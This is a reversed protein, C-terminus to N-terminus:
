TIIGPTHFDAEELCHIEWGKGKESKTAFLMRKGDTRVNILGYNLKEVCKARDLRPRHYYKSSNEKLIVRYKKIDEDDSDLDLDKTGQLAGGYGQVSTFRQLGEVDRFKVSRAIETSFILPAKLSVGDVNWVKRSTMGTAALLTPRPHDHSEADGSSIVTAFPHIGSLFGYHVDHSGHHCGKAADVRFKQVFNMGYHEMIHNQSATNLDGTLLFTRDQYTAKLAVSHGNTNISTGGLSKLAPEGNVESLIPGLVEIEVKSDGPAFGTLHGSSSNLFEVDTPSGDAKTMNQWTRVFKGWNGGVQEANPIDDRSAQVVSSRDNLLQTFHGSKKPGLTKGSGSAKRWYSLGAHYINEVTLGKCDLEADSVPTRKTLDWLGGFHDQDCHSIIMADLIIPTDSQNRRQSASQYDNYFKWDVFDAANRGGNQNSRIDGGDIMINHGEPTVLLIGDGQGVDIVYIELLADDSLENTLVWGTLGRASVKTWSGDANQEHTIVRDGWLLVSIKDDNSNPNPYLNATYANQGSIGITKDWWKTKAPVSM